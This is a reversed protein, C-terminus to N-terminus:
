VFYLEEWQKNGRIGSMCDLGSVQIANGDSDRVCFFHEGGYEDKAFQLIKLLDDITNKM